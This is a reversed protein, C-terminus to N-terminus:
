TQEYGARGKRVDWVLGLRRWRRSKSGVADALGRQSLSLPPALHIRVQLVARLYDETEVPFLPSTPVMKRSPSLM